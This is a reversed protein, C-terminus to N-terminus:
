TWLDHLDSVQQETLETTWMGFAYMKYNTSLGTYAVTMTNDTQPATGWTHVLQGDLFCKKNAIAFTHVGAAPASMSFAANPKNYFFLSGSSNRFLIYSIVNNTRFAYGATGSGPVDAVVFMSGASAKTPFGGVTLYWDSNTFIWGNDADWVPTGGQPNLTNVGPNALNAYSAALSDAGWPQYAFVPTQGDQLWWEGPGVNPNTM